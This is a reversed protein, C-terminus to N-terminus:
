GRAGSVPVGAESGKPQYALTNFLANLVGISATLKPTAAALSAAAPRLVSALPQLGVAFPRLQDRLV